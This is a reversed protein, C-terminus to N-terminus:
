GVARSRRSGPARARPIARRAPDGQELPEDDRQMTAVTENRAVAQIMARPEVTSRTMSATTATMRIASNLAMMRGTTRASAAGTESDQDRDEDEDELDHREEDHGVLGGADM